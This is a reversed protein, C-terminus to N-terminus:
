TIAGGHSHEKKNQSMKKCRAYFSAMENRLGSQAVRELAQAERTSMFFSSTLPQQYERNSRPTTAQQPPSIKKRSPRAPLTGTKFKIHKIREEKLAENVRQKLVPTLFFLEQAWSSNCVILVLSDDTIKELAVKDKLPGIIKEWACLLPIKWRHEVPFIAGLFHHLRKSM